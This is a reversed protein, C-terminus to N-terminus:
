FRGALAPIFLSLITMVLGILTLIGALKWFKMQHIIAAELDAPNRSIETRTIASAYKSLGNALLFVVVTMLIMLPAVLFMLGGLQSSLGLIAFTAMLMIAFYIFGLVSIFRVWGKSAYLYSQAVGSASLGRAGPESQFVSHGSSQPQNQQYPNEM